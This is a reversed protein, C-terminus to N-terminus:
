LGARRPRRRLRAGDGPELSERSDDSYLIWQTDGFWWFPTGEEREFHYPAGTRARIGGRRPSTVCEFSGSKGDLGPNASSTVWSWGGAIDPSFRARWTAGGDWFLPVSRTEGGPGTFTATASLERYPNEVSGSHTFATEHVDFRQVYEGQAGASRALPFLSLAALVLLASRRGLSAATSVAESVRLGSRPDARM